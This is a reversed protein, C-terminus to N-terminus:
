SGRGGGAEAFSVSFFCSLVCVRRTGSAEGVNALVAGRVCPCPQGCRVTHETDHLAGHLHELQDRLGSCDHGAAAAAGEAHRLAADREVLLGSLRDHERRMGQLDHAMMRCEELAGALQGESAEAREEGRQLQRASEQLQLSAHM